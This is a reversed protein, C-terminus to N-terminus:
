NIVRSIQKKFCMNSCKYNRFGSLSIDMIQKMRQLHLQIDLIIAITFVTLTFLHNMQCFVNLSFLFSLSFYYMTNDYQRLNLLITRKLFWIAIIVIKYLYKRYTVQQVM